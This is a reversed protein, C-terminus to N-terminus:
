LCYTIQPAVALISFSKKVIQSSKVWFKCYGDAAAQLDKSCRKKVIKNRLMIIIIGADCFRELQASRQPKSCRAVFDVAFDPNFM